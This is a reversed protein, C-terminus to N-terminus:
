SESNRQERIYLYLFTNVAGSLPVVIWYSLVVFALFGYSYSAEFLSGIILWAILLGTFALSPITVLARIGVGKSFDQVLKRCRHRGAEGSLGEFVLVNSAMAWYQRHRIAQLIGYIPVFAWLFAAAEFYIKM